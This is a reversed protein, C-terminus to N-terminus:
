TSHRSRVTKPACGQAPRSLNARRPNEMTTKPIIVGGATKEAAEIRRVLVRDRFPRFLM